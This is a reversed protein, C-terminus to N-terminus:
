EVVGMHAKSPSHVLQSVISVAYAIDPRTHSLYILRGVLRQHHDKNTLIQDPHIALHHNQAIPTNAPKCDLMRTKVLLNLIYKRQSLFMGHKSRAVEIALFYKLGGLDKMKFKTALYDKLRLIQEKDDGTVTMDDVYIILATLKGM